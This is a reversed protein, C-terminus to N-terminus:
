KEIHNYVSVYIGRYDRYGHIFELWGEAQGKVAYAVDIAFNVGNDNIFHEQLVVSANKRGFM